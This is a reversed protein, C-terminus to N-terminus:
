ERLTRGSLAIFVDELTGTRVRLDSMSQVAAAWPKTSDFVAAMITEPRDTHLTVKSGEVEARDVGPIGSLFEGDPHTTEFEVTTGPAHAAILGIPTDLAVIRGLDIMAVRDCLREAEEMYHTTLIVTKGHDRIGTVVDWLNLRAQPDLGTTPEDLFVLDPDNVMALAVSLRQLQGGSLQETFADRREELDFEAILAGVPRQKVYFSRFLEVAETVTTKTPLAAAQLQVGIRQKISRPSRVVSQGLVTADGSDPPRMGELMEMTTTKGAGNPGLLGFIEGRHVQFSVQNVACL